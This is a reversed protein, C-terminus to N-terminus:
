YPVENTLNSISSKRRDWVRKLKGFTPILHHLLGDLTFEHSGDVLSQIAKQGGHLRRM